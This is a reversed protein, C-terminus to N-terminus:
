NLLFERVFRSGFYGLTLLFAAIVTVSVTKPGRWGKFKHGAVVGSFMVWAILSLITKHAVTKSFMDDLYIFGTILAAALASTGVLLLQFQQREVIMLPPLPSNVISLDKNKLRNSIFLSQIAYLSAIVLLCYAALSLTVHFALSPSQFFNQYIYHKPILANTVLLIASFGYVVSQLLASPNKISVATIALSIVWSVLLIVNILSFNQGTDTFTQVIFVSLHLILAASASTMVTTFPLSRSFFISRTLLTFAVVYLVLAILMLATTFM